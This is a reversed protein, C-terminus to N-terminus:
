AAAEKPYAATGNAPALGIALDALREAADPRGLSAAAAAARALRGPEALLGRLREAILAATLGAEPLSWAAGAADLAAANATQHDDTAYRYPVLLAPRGAVALEATTSAGARAIVLQARRLRVPMDDFFTALEAAFGTGAYAARVRDIDEPRCQQALRIRAREEPALAGIAAPVLDSFIRAGQSGGVLLLELPGGPQPASYPQGALAAIAPRVPNGTFAIKPRDEAAIGRVDPFATAIRTARGALLRNARGMVANQEHLVLSLGMKGAAIMTPVSAYGGFGIAVAPRTERLIRRAEFYGVGLAALAEARAVLGRGAIGGARIRRVEVAPLRDGFASGRRDTVLLVRRGRALLAAALAEAPFMHGGTGGAALLIPRQASASM